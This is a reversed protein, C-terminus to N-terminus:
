NEPLPIFEDDGAIRGFRGEKWDAKAREIREPSSSVFNWWIHREGDIPSGGLLMVRAGDPSALEANAGEALVIMEGDGFTEGAVEITGEVLYIAREPHEGTVPLRAGPALRVDLYFMPSVTEVPATAGYAKGAILRMTAGDRAIEPLTDKPHHFFAPEREEEATPLAIWTQIGFLTSDTARIEERTRESHVIGRGATMWNVDGPRIPQAYGLDDRHMVEGEFLYTVTALGIHPHPRVDIGDGPPFANPGMRDFFIFPGIMRRRANPLVRAVEFGGIDRPRAKIVLDVTDTM